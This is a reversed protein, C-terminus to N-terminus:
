QNSKMNGWTTSLKGSAQIAFSASLGKMIEKIGVEDLAVNFIAVEDLNGMFFYNNDDEVRKGFNIPNKSSAITGSADFSGDDVGNLWTTVRKGDFTGAVHYWTDPLLVTKTSYKTQDIWVNNVQACFHVTGSGANCRLEWVAMGHTVFMQFNKTPQPTKLWASVTMADTTDFVNRNKGCSVSNNTGNFELSKGIKGDVWKAGNIEGDNGSVSSDKTINGDGEDVLWMGVVTKQDIKAYSPTAIILVIIIFSVIVTLRTM